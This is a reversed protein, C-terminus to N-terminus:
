LDKKYLNYAKVLKNYEDGMKVSVIYWHDNIKGCDSAYYIKEDKIKFYCPYRDNTKLEDINCEIMWNKIKIIQNLKKNFSLIRTYAPSAGKRKELEYGEECYSERTTHINYKYCWRETKAVSYHPAHDSPQKPKNSHKCSGCCKALKLEM